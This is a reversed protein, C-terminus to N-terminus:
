KHPAPAAEELPLGAEHWGDTGDPYWLVGNYGWSVARKAANWSMWCDRVCYIVLLKTRDGGSIRELGIRLYDETAVSLEGYGTNALWTSGPINFRRQGRWLTEAPLNDPRPLYTMVDVFTAFGKKWLAEAEDTSIVRAGRLTAPTPSRYNESRYSEPEHLSPEDGLAAGIALMVSGLVFVCTPRGIMM